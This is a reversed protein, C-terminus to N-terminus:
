DPACEIIDSAKVTFSFTILFSEDVNTSSYPDFLCAPRDLRFECWRTTEEGERGSENGNSMCRRDSGKCQQPSPITTRGDVM